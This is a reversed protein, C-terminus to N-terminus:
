ATIVSLVPSVFHYYFVRENPNQNVMSGIIM